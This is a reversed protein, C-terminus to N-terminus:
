PHVTCNDLKIEDLLDDYGIVRGKVVVRSGPVFDELPWGPDDALTCVIQNNILLYGEQMDTLEGDIEIVKDTYKEHAADMMEHFESLFYDADVTYAVESKAYDIHPKNYTKSGIYVILFYILLAGFLIGAIKLVTIFFTKMGQNEKSILCIIFDPTLDLLM